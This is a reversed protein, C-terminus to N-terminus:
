GKPADPVLFSQIESHLAGDFPPVVETQSIQRRAACPDGTMRIRRQSMESTNPNSTVRPSAAPIATPM